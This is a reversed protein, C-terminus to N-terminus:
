EFKLSRINGAAAGPTKFFLVVVTSTSATIPFTLTKFTTWGGTNPVNGSAIVRGTTNGERLEFAGGTAPSPWDRAYELTLKKFGTMPVSYSAWDGNDTSGIYNSNVTIGQMAVYNLAQITIPQPAPVIWVKKERTIKYVYTATDAPEFNIRFHGKRTLQAPYDPSLLVEWTEKYIKTDQSFATLSFLLLIATLKM